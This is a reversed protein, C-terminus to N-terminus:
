EGNQRKNFREEKPKYKYIDIDANNESNGTIDKM